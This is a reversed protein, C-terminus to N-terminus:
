NQKSNNNQLPKKPKDAPQVLRANKQLFELIEKSVKKSDINQDIAMLLARFQDLKMQVAIVTDQKVPVDQAQITFASLILLITILKKM